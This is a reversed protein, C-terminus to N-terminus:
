PKAEGGARQWALQARVAEPSAPERGCERALAVLAEVLEGNSRARSGDPLYFTDELGTRLGGGLEAARRCLPWDQSCAASRVPM